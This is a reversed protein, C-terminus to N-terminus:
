PLDAFRVFVVDYWRGDPTKSRYLPAIRVETVSGSESLRTMYRKLQLTDVMEVSVHWGREQPLVGRLRMGPMLAEIARGRATELGPVPPGNELEQEQRGLRDRPAPANSGVRENASAPYKGNPDWRRAISWASKRTFTWPLPIGRCGDGCWVTLEDYDIMDLRAVLDGSTTSAVRMARRPPHQGEPLVDSDWTNPLDRDSLHIWGDACRYDGALPGERRLRGASESGDLFRVRVELVSDASGTLEFWEWAKATSDWPIFRGAMMQAIPESTRAFRGTVNPCAGKKGLALRGWHRPMADAHCAALSGLWLISLCWRLERAANM